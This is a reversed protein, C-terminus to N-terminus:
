NGGLKISCKSLRQDNEIFGNGRIIHGEFHSENLSFQLRVNYQFLEGEVLTSIYKEKTGERLLVGDPIMLDIKVNQLITKGINEANVTILYEMDEEITESDMSIKLAPAADNIEISTKNSSSPYDGQESPISYDLNLPGIKWEGPLNPVVSFVITYNEGTSLNLPLIPMTSEIIRGRTGTKLNIKNISIPAHATIRVEVDFQSGKRLIDDQEKRLIIAECLSCRQMVHEADELIGNFDESLDIHPLKVNNEYTSMMNILDWIKEISQISTDSPNKKMKRYFSFLKNFDKQSLFILFKILNLKNHSIPPKECLRGIQITKDIDPLINKPKQGTQLKTRISHFYQKQSLEYKEAYESSIAANEISIVKMETDNFRRNAKEFLRSARAYDGQDFAKRGKSFDVQPDKIFLNKLFSM